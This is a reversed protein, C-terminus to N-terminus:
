KPSINMTNLIYVLKVQRHRQCLPSINTMNINTVDINTIAWFAGSQKAKKAIHKQWKRLSDDAKSQEAEPDGTSIHHWKRPNKKANLYIEITEAIKWLIVTIGYKIGSKKAIKEYKKM